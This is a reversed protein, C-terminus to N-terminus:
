DMTVILFTQYLIYIYLIHRFDARIADVSELLVCVVSLIIVILLVIDFLRGYKTDAEFVIEHLRRKLQNMTAMTRM